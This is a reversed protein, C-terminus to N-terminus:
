CQLRFLMLAPVTAQAHSNIFHLSANIAACIIVITIVIPYDNAKSKALIFASYSLHAYIVPHHSRSRSWIMMIVGKNM